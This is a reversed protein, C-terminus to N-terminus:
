AFMPAEGSPPVDLRRLAEGCAAELGAADRVADAFVLRRFVGSVRVDLGESDAGLVVVGTPAQCTLRPLMEAEREPDVVWEPEAAKVWGMRGFGGVFRAQEPVLRFFRFDGLELYQQSAPSYRLFRAVVAEGLVAPVARGLLTLRAQSLHAGDGATVLLSARSDALLNRTHEALGSILFIPQGASDTMFTIASVFPYGSCSASHTGLVGSQSSRLLARVERYDIKM